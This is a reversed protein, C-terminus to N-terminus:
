VAFVLPVVRPGPCTWVTEGLGLGAVLGTIWKRFAGDGVRHEGGPHLSGAFLELGPVAAEHVGTQFGGSITFGFPEPPAALNAKGRSVQSAPM